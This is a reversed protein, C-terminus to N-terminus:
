LWGDPLEGRHDQILQILPAIREWNPGKSITGAERDWEIYGREELKPLHIHSLTTEVTEDAAADGLLDLPDTDTDDQPNAELMAVLLQRRYPDSLADLMSAWDQTEKM